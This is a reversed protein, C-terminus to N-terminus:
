RVHCGFLETTLAAALEAGGPGGLGAARAAAAEYMATAAPQAGCSRLALATLRLVQGPPPVCSGCSSSLDCTHSPAQAAAAGCCQSDSHATPHLRRGVQEDLPAASAVREAIQAPACGYSM